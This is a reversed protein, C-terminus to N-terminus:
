SLSLSYQNESFGIGKSGDKLLLNAM